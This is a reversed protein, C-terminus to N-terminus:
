LDFLAREARRRRLLGPLIMSGSYIWTLFEQKVSVFDKENLKKLLTSDRFAKLGINYALSVLASFQNSSVPIKISDFVGSEFYALDEMLIEEARRESIVM